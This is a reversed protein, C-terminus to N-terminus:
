DVRDLALATGPALPSHTRDMADRAQRSIAHTFEQVRDPPVRPISGQVRAFREILARDEVDSEAGPTTWPLKALEVWADKASWGQHRIRIAAQVLNSRHHGGVCHFYVPQLRTDTALDAAMALQELTATSGRMPVIIWGVGEQKVLRQQDVYKPDDRNIATLTLLTRIGERRIIRRLPRPRQWAGRVVRHPVVESVRKERFESWFFGALCASSGILVSGVALSIGRSRRSRLWTTALKLTKSERAIKLLAIRIRLRCESSELGSRGQSLGL